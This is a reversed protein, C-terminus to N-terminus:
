ENGCQNDEEDQLNIRIMREPKKNFFTIINFHTDKERPAHASLRRHTKRNDARTNRLAIAQGLAAILVIAENLTLIVTQQGKGSREILVDMM